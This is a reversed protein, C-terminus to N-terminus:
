SAEDNKIEKTKKIQSTTMLLFPNGFVMFMIKIKWYATEFERGVVITLSALTWSVLGLEIPIVQM